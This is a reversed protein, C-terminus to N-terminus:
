QISVNSIRERIANEIVDILGLINESNKVAKHWYERNGEDGYQYEIAEKYCMNSLERAKVFIEKSYFPSHEDTIKMFNVLADGLAKSRKKKREEPSEGEITIDAVPRLALASQKLANLKKWIEEYIKYEKEFQFKYIHVGKEVQQQLKFRLEELDKEYKAKEKNMIRTALIKGMFSSLAFLVVSAGGFSVIIAGAIEFIEKITM